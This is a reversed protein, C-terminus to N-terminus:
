YRQKRKTCSGRVMGLLRSTPFFESDTNTGSRSSGCRLCPAQCQPRRDQGRLVRKDGHCVSLGLCVWHCLECASHPSPCTRPQASLVLFLPHQCLLVPRCCLHLHSGSAGRQKRTAEPQLWRPTGQPGAGSKGGAAHVVQAMPTQAGPQSLRHRHLHTHPFCLRFPM